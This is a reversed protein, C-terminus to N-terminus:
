SQVTRAVLNGRKQFPRKSSKHPKISLWLQRHQFASFPDIETLRLLCFDASETSFTPKGLSGSCQDTFVGKKCAAGYFGFGFVEAWPISKL